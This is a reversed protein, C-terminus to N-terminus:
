GKMERIRQIRDETGPHTAFFGGSSGSTRVLWTLTNEMVQKGNYGARRLIEVGHSDAQYEEGRSFPKMIGLDTILPAVSGAGPIIQDLLISGLQLGTGLAQTKMVHGLDEHAIEHALVGRLQEDNAKRLLGITVLFQGGGANGANIDNSNVVAIRVKDPPLPKSMAKLLPVMVRQLRDAQAPDIKVTEIKTGGGGASPATDTALPACGSAVLCSLLILVPLILRYVPRRSQVHRARGRGM